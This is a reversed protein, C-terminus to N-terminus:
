NPSRRSRVWSTTPELGVLEVKSFGSCNGPNRGGIAGGAVASGRARTGLPCALGTANNCPHPPSASEDSAEEAQMALRGTPVQSCQHARAVGLRGRARARLRARQAPSRIAALSPSRRSTARPHSRPRTRARDPRRPRARRRRAVAPCGAPKPPARVSGASAVPEPAQTVPQEVVILADRLQELPLRPLRPLLGGELDGRRDVQDLVVSLTGLLEQGVRMRPRVAQEGRALPQRDGVPWVRDHADDARPVEGDQDGQGIRHGRQQGTCRDGDLRRLEGREGGALDDTAPALVQASWSHEFAQGARSGGAGRQNVLGVVDLEGAGGAGAPLDGLAGGLPQDWVAELEPALVRHDHEGVGVELPRRVTRDPAAHGVGALCAGGNLADVDLLRHVVLEDRQYGLAHAAQALAGGCPKSASTPASELSVWSAM